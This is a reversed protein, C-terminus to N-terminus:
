RQVRRRAALQDFVGRLTRWLGEMEEGAGISGAFQGVGHEGAFQGIQAGAGFGAPSQEGFEGCGLHNRLGVGIGLGSRAGFASGLGDM